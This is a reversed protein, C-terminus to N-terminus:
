SMRIDNGGRICMLVGETNKNVNSEKLMFSKPIM